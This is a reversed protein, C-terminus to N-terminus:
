LGSRNIKKTYWNVPNELLTIGIKSFYNRSVATTLGNREAIKHLSNKFDGLLKNLSRQVIIKPHRRSSAHPILNESLWRDEESLDEIRVFYKSAILRQEDRTLKLIFFEENTLIRQTIGEEPPASEPTTKTLSYLIDRYFNISIELVPSNGKIEQLCKGCWDNIDRYSLLVLRLSKNAEHAAIKWR